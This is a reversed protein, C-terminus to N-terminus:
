VQEQAKVPTLHDASAAPDIGLQGLLDEAAAIGLEDAIRALEKGAISVATESESSWDVDPVIPLEARQRTRALKGDDDAMVADVVFERGDITALAGIPASCGAEARSLIARECTVALDTTVDHLRRLAARVEVDAAMADTDVAYPSDAGRTEVALAGQGPAPLMTTFDLSDTAEALRGIRRVGAAALVVADLRGDRVHAIRTDVNGRVGRVEIDPRAARLQVARRPSGTGIVSGAPLQSLSLGDRGILVDAPDVRPPIAAMQIGAEPTTPLDKLSHVAIDIKGQHLAQRVASVFVGTGGFGALPSMNVDGETVVEVIEVRWGTLAALQHAIATSQSRALQSRRTGLRITRGSFNEPEVVDLTHDAVPRIGDAEIHNPSSATAVKTEPKTIAHAVKNTPLDFLQMLAQAYDVDTESVALEKVKVTPTHILKEAVRHLSKRVEAFSKADISEGLKKELRATEAALVDKAHSRLATVTPAVAREKAGTEIKALEEDIIRRVSEVTEVVQADRQKDSSTLMTRIEGLGFLAVHEFERVSPDIDHPLALDVFAKNAAGKPNQALGAVIDDRGVVVARAGTCSVILDADAIEEAMIRPTLERARGGVEAVLREAKELTRNLVTIRSVGEKYLGSVVLGSMAGAGIVLANAARLSGIHAASAELAASFLSRAVEDLGTESHARKGVRLAQQLAHSLGSTLAGASLSDTFTSRLQGLIQAEGIAMSDLGCAVKLLHQMAQTDYHAYFHGAIDSWEKDISSVLANGLDALGGHFATVDAILELRNCTSLVALGDVNEGAIADSRLESVEGARFALADLMDIPASQHSIGLVLLTM